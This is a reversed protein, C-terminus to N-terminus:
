KEVSEVVVALGAETGYRKEAAQIVVQADDIWVIGKLADEAARVLKTTDPPGTPWSEVAWPKLTTANKGTGYHSKPRALWFTMKLELPGQLPKRGAMAQSAFISVRQRWGANNKGADRLFIRGTGPTIMAKKSGGPAPTGPVTFRVRM